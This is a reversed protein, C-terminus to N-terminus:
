RYQQNCTAALAGSRNVSQIAANHLGAGFPPDIFVIDFPYQYSLKASQTADACRLVVNDLSLGAIGRVLDSHVAKSKEILLASAAGRSIAEIGLVGSGAFMDLCHSGVLWPQLWSFLTERLRDGTPRLGDADAFDLM